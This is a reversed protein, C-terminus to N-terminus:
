QRSSSLNLNTDISSSQVGEPTLNLNRHFQGDVKTTNEVKKVGDVKLQTVVLETGFFQFSYDLSRIANLTLTDSLLSIHAFAIFM